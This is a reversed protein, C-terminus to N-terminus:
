FNRLKKPSAMNIEPPTVLFLIPLKELLVWPVAIEALYWSIPVLSSLEGQHTDFAEGEGHSYWHHSHHTWPGRGLNVSAGHVQWMFSLSECSMLSPLKWTTGFFIIQNLHFVLRISSSIYIYVIYHYTYIYPVAPPTHLRTLSNHQNHQHLDSLQELCSVIHWALQTAYAWKLWIIGRGFYTRSHSRWTAEIKSIYVLIDCCWNGSKWYIM